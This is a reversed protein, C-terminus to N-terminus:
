APVPPPMRCIVQQYKGSQPNRPIDSVFHIRVTLEDGVLSRVEQLMADRISGDTGPKVVANIDLATISEQVFQAHTVQPLQMFLDDLMLGAVCAGNPLYLIDATRGDLGAFTPLACGCDCTAESATARDGTV